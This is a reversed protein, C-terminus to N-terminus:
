EHNNRRLIMAAFLGFGLLGIQILRTHDVVPLTQAPGVQPQYTVSTPRNWTFRLNMVPLAMEIVQTRPVLLGGAVAIPPGARSTNRFWPAPM